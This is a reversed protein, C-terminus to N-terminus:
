FHGPGSIRDCHHGIADIIQDATRTWKFPEANENWFEVWLSEL